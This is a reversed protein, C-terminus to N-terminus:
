LESYFKESADIVKLTMGPIHKEMRAKVLKAEDKRLLGTDVLFPKFRDGVARHLLAAGVSSDVGGSVAGICYKDGLTAVITDAQLRAFDQMSWTGKCGCIERVFNRILQTGCPTHTVEPHFQVGWMRRATDEVAAHPCSPTSGITKFGSPLKTVKDGHSM